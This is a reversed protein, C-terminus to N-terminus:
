ISRSQRPSVPACGISRPIVRSISLTRFLSPANSSRVPGASRVYNPIATRSRGAVHIPCNTFWSTRQPTVGSGLRKSAGASSGISVRPSHLDSRHSRDRRTGFSRRSLNQQRRERSRATVSWWRTSSSVSPSCTPDIILTSGECRNLHCTPFPELCRERKPRQTPRCSQPHPSRGPPM